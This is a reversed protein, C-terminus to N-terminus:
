ADADRARRPPDSSGTDDERLHVPPTAMKRARINMLAVFMAFGVHMGVATTISDLAFVM